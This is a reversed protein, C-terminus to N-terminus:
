RKEVLQSARRARATQSIATVAANLRDEEARFQDDTLEKNLHRNSSVVRDFMLRYLELTEAALFTNEALIGSREEYDLM